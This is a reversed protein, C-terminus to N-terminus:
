SEAWKVTALFPPESLPWAKDPGWTVLPQEDAPESDLGKITYKGPIRPLSQVHFISELRAAVVTAKAWYSPM